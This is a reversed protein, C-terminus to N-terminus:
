NTFYWHRNTNFVIEGSEVLTSLEDNLDSLLNAIKQYNESEMSLIKKVKLFFESAQQVDQKSPNITRTICDKLSVFLDYAKQSETYSSDFRYIVAVMASPDINLIIQALKKLSQSSIDPLLCVSLGQLQRNEFVNNWAQLNDENLYFDGFEGFPEKSEKLNKCLGKFMQPPLYTYINNSHTFFTRMNKLRKVCYGKWLRTYIDELMVPDILQMNIDEIPILKSALQLEPDNLKKQAIENKYQQEAQSLFSSLAQEEEATLKNAMKRNVFSQADLWRQDTSILHLYSVQSPYAPDKKFPSSKSQFEKETMWKGCELAHLLKAAQISKLLALKAKPDTSSSPIQDALQIIEQRSILRYNFVMLHEVKFLDFYTKFFKANALKLDTPTLRAALHHRDHVQKHFHKCTHALRQQDRLDLYSIITPELAETISFFSM